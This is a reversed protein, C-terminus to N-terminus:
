LEHGVSECSEPEAGPKRACESRMTLLQREAYHVEPHRLPEPMHMGIHTYFKPFLPRDLQLIPMWCGASVHVAGILIIDQLQRNPSGKPDIPWKERRPDHCNQDPQRESQLLILRRTPYAISYIGVNFFAVVTKGIRQAFKAITIPDQVPTEDRVRVRREYEKYGLWAIRIVTTTKGALPAASRANLLSEGWGSAAYELEIGVYGHNHHFFIPMQLEAEEIHQGRDTISQPEWMTQPVVADAPMTGVDITWPP